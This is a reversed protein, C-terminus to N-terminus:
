GFGAQAPTRIRQPCVDLVTTKQDERLDSRFFMRLVLQWREIMRPNLGAGVPIRYGLHLRDSTYHRAILLSVM